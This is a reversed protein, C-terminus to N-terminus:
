AFGEPVHSDQVNVVGEAHNEDHRREGRNKPRRGAPIDQIHEDELENESRRHPPYRLHRRRERMPDQCKEVAPRVRHGGYELLAPTGPGDDHANEDQSQNDEHDHVAETHHVGRM